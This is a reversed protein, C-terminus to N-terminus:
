LLESFMYITQALYMDRLLIGVCLDHSKVQFVVTPNFVKYSVLTKFTPLDFQSYAYVFVLVTRLSITFQWYNTASYIHFFHIGCHVNTCLIVLILNMILTTDISVYSKKVSVDNMSLHVEVVYYNSMHLSPFRM